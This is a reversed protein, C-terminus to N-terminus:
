NRVDFREASFVGKISRIKELIKDLHVIDKISLTLMGEFNGDKSDLKIGRLKVLTDKALLETINNIISIEDSGTIRIGTVFDVNAEARSWQAKIIRYPYQG